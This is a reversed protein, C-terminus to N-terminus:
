GKSKGDREVDRVVKDVAVWLAVARCPSHGNDPLRGSGLAGYIADESQLWTNKEEGCHLGKTRKFSDTAPTASLRQWIMVSQDCLHQQPHGAILDPTM